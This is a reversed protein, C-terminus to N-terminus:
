YLVPVLVGFFGLCFGLEVSLFSWNVEHRDDLNKGASPSFKVANSSDTLPPGHLETGLFSSVSLSQLQTSTPIKGTIKNYSLNLHSLFTLYSISPPIEGSINNTSLDVSELSGMAGINAPITGLLLNHSFNLSQLGVLSTVEEPIEGSLNNDSLDMTKVLKLTTSYDVVRGKMVLLIDEFFSGKSTKYFIKNDSKNRSAMANLNNICSPIDGSLKNHSLDLIQLSSLNCLQKPITGNFKNTHLSFIILKSLREGMWPPIDGSLQNAGFDVTLLEGCNKLSPVEGVLSNNRIHLSQLSTLTGMSSPIRGSFNNDCLKIAVLRPFMKWCDPIEGSLLNNGLNLVELKMPENVKYCLFHSTSGSMSNNSLDVATVNSSLRPLPGSFNNSSLDIVVPPHIMALLDPINGQFQNRSINLYSLNSSLNWFWTPIPTERFGNDSLDLYSLYKLDLLSPNLKGGLKSRVYAEAEANSAFVGQSSGLHLKIVHGTENNCVIGDWKCCDGDHTWAALRNSPDELDQKIRLLAQRESQICTVNHNRASFGLKSTILCQLMLLTITVSGMVGGIALCIKRLKKILAMPKRKLGRQFRRHVHTPFLKVLEDSSMDLHADLDIGRFSFKKFTIELTRVKAAVKMSGFKCRILSSSAVREIDDSITM